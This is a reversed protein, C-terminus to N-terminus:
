KDLKPLAAVFEAIERRKHASLTQYSPMPANPNLMAREIGEVGIRAGIEDLKPGVDNGNEKYRHCATCSAQEVAEKGEQYKAPIKAEIETPSGAGAGLLTLYAMSFIVLGLTTMAIPRKLPNREAGRDFFPLLLLLVLGITPIGITALVLLSPPKIVRLLEFLYFFYWEPRPIYTTSTPDAAPGLEAGLALSMVVMVVLVVVMMVSDKLVAYPYFPKGREKMIQYERLYKEKEAQNM